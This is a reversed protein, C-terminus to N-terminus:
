HAAERRWEDVAKRAVEMLAAGIREYDESPLNALSVRVSWPPGDFGSGNLLVIGFHRALALVIDLPDYHAQVYEHFTPGFNRIGWAQLDLEVYYGARLPMSPVEVGLGRALSELRTQVISRCREKYALGEEQLGFLSFLSMQVQQPLSLGATHNLAVMRSDAVCRDIFKMKDPFETLSEYRLHLEDSISEPHRAILQDIVTDEHIGIAGLRWGTCGFHKSYSYVVITNRPLTAALSRFGPVFTAYVDDTLLILDPRKTRVLLELQRHASENMAMSPPNSPNVLFFAKVKPDELKRLEAEPYQWTPFGNKMESAEVNVVNLSFDRLRPIELYPTFIPTGIAITDGPNLLHNTKLANFLYCMAATGGETAFYDFRGPPPKNDFLEQDLYRRVIKETHVLIRDPEPYTDGIIANVLEHVFPDGEFGLADVGYGVAQSLFRAGKSSHNQLFTTLRIAIGSPRPMGAFDPEDWVRKCEQLAFEGLLNFAERPTTAIWNPNGRGANLMKSTTSKNPTADRALKILVDKLEFPSLKRLKEHELEQTSQTPSSM